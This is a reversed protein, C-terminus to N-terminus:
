FGILKGQEFAEANPGLTYVTDRGERHPKVIGASIIAGWMRSNWGKLEEPNKGISRMWGGRTKKETSRIYDIVSQIRGGGEQFTWENPKKVMTYGQQELRSKVLSDFQTIISHNRIPLMKKITYLLKIVNKINKEKKFAEEVLEDLMGQCIDEIENLLKDPIKHNIKVKFNYLFILKNLPTSTDIPKALKEEIFSKIKENNFIVNLNLHYEDLLSEMVTLLTENKNKLIFSDFFYDLRNEKLINKYQNETIIIRM